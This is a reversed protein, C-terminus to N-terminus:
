EVTMKYLASRQNQRVELFYIGQPQDSLDIILDSEKQQRVSWILKGSLNKVFLDSLGYNKLHLNFVRGPNPFLELADATPNEIGACNSVAQTFQKSSFCTGDTGTISYVTTVSPSAAFTGNSSVGNLSYSLAGSATITVSNKSCSLSRTSTIILSPSPVVTLNVVTSASASGCGPATSGALLVTGSAAPSTVFTSGTATSMWTYTSAGQATLTTSQGSCLIMNGTATLTPTIVPPSLKAVFIYEQPAVGTLTSTGFVLTGYAFDGGFYYGCNKDVAVYNQDDGGAPVMVVWLVNGNNDYDIIFSEDGNATSATYTVGGITMTAAPRSGSVVVGGNHSRACWGQQNGVAGEAKAWLANGSGDYRVTVVDANPTGPTGAVSFSGYASTVSSNLVGTVYCGGQGDAAPSIGAESGSGVSQGVWLVNGNADYKVTFMCGGGVDTLNTSNFTATAGYFGGTAFVDGNADASVGLMQCGQAASARKAWLVNGAPDYKIIFAELSNAAASTLTVTGAVLQATLYYGCVYINGFSDSSIDTMRNSSSAVSPSFVPRTWLVNGSADYKTVCMEQTNPIYSTLTFTGYSVQTSYGGATILDGQADSCIANLHSSANTFTTSGGRAWLPNGNTDFKAVCSQLFGTPMLTTTGFVNPSLAYWGSVFVNGSPDVCLGYGEGGATGQGGWQWTQSQSSAATLFFILLPSFKKM